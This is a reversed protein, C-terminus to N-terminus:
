PIERAAPVPSAESHRGGEVSPAKHHRAPQGAAAAAHNAGSDRQIGQGKVVLGRATATSRTGVSRRRRARRVLSPLCGVAGALVLALVVLLPVRPGATGEALDLTSTPYDIMKAASVATARGATASLYELAADFGTEGNPGSLPDVPIGQQAAWDRLQAGTAAGGAMVVRDLRPGDGLPLTALVVGHQTTITSGTAIAVTRAAYSNSYVEFASAVDIESVGDALAMGLTPRLWPAALNLAVPLDRATLTQVPIKTSASPSWNPHHVLRGVRAAEPAGALEDVLHLAAPIGSTIGATTTINGDDVYREGNVWHTEPHQKKLTSIRSWHSTATRGELLGTAAMLRAGACVSLIRAGHQSQDIVWARLAAETPGDPDDVAPIVVIDPKTARGSAVDAFTYTPVVAPGGDVPAPAASAAVTYVSFKPSSAFVEFPALADSGVTGSAGLAVAVVLHGSSPSAPAPNTRPQNSTPLQSQATSRVVGAVALGSLTLVMLAVSTAVWGIRKLHSSM